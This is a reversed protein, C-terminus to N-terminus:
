SAMAPRLLGVGLTIVSIALVIAGVYILFVAQTPQSATPSLMSFFFGASILIAALPVGVRVAWTLWDPLVAADALLECVL